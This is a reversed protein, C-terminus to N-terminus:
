TEDDGTIGLESEKDNSFESLESKENGGTRDKVYHEEDDSTGDLM